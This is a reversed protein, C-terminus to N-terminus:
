WPAPLPLFYQDSYKSSYSTIWTFRCLTQPVCSAKKNKHKIIQNYGFNTISSVQMYRLKTIAKQENEEATPESADLSVMKDYLDRRLEM